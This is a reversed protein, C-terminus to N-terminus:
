ALIPDEVQNEFSPYTSALYSYYQAIHGLNDQVLSLCLNHSCADSYYTTCRRENLNSDILATGLNTITSSALHGISSIVM